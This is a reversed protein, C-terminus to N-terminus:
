SKRKKREKEKVGNKKGRARATREKWRFEKREKSKVKTEKIRKIESM